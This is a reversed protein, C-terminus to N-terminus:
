FVGADGELSDVCGKSRSSIPNTQGGTVGLEDGLVNAVQASDDLLGSTVQGLLISQALIGNGIAQGENVGGLSDNFAVTWGEQHRGFAFNLTVTGDSTSAVVDLMGMPASGHVRM